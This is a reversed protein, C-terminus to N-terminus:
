LFRRAREEAVEACHNYLEWVDHVANEDRSHRRLFNYMPHDTKFRFVLYGDEVVAHELLIDWVTDAELEFGEFEMEGIVNWWPWVSLIGRYYTKGWKNFWKSKYVDVSTRKLAFFGKESIPVKIDKLSKFM